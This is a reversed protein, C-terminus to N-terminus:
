EVSKRDLPKKSPLMRLLPQNRGAREKGIHVVGPKLGGDAHEHDRLGEPVDLDHAIRSEGHLADGDVHGVRIETGVSEHIAKEVKGALCTNRRVSEAHLNGLAYKEPAVELLQLAAKRAQVLSADPDREIVEPRTKVRVGMKPPHRDIPDLDVAAQHRIQSRGGLIQRDYSPYDVDGVAHALYHGGFTHLGAFLRFKKLIEAAIIELAPIEGLSGVDFTERVHKRVQRM